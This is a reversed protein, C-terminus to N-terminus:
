AAKTISTKEYRGQWSFHHDTAQKKPNAFQKLCKRLESRIQNKYLIWFCRNQAPLANQAERNARNLESRLGMLQCTVAHNADHRTYSEIAITLSPKYAYNQNGPAYYSM